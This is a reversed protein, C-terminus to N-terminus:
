SPSSKGRRNHLKSMKWSTSWSTVADQGKQLKSTAREMDTDQTWVAVGDVFLRVQPVEITSAPDDIYFLFILPSQVSGLSVGQKMTVTRRRGGDCTLWTLRNSLWAQIWRVMHSPIGGKQMPSIDAVRWGQPVKTMAWSKNIISTLLSM